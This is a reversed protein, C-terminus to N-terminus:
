GLTEINPSQRIKRPLSVAELYLQGDLKKRSRLSDCYSYHPLPSRLKYWFRLEYLFGTYLESKYVM